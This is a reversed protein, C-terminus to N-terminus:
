MVPSQETCSKADMPVQKDREDDVGGEEDDDTSGDDHVMVEGKSVNVVYAFLTYMHVHSALSAIADHTPHPVRPCLLHMEQYQPTCADARNVHQDRNSHLFLTFLKGDIM